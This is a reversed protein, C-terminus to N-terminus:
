QKSFDCPIDTIYKNADWLGNTSTIGLLWKTFHEEKQKRMTQKFTEAAAQYEEHCPHMPLGRWHMHEHSLRNKHKRLNMLEQDVMKM